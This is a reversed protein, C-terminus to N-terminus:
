GSTKFKGPELFVRNEPCTKTCHLGYNQALLPQKGPCDSDHLNAKTPIGDSGAGTFRGEKM